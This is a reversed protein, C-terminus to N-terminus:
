GAKGARGRGDSGGSNDLIYNEDLRERAQFSGRRRRGLPCLGFQKLM